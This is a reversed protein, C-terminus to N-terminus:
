DPTINDALLENALYIEDAEKEDIHHQAQKPQRHKTKRKQKGANEMDIIRQSFSLLQNAERTLVEIANENKMKSQLDLDM